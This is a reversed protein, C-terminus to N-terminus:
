FFIYVFLARLSSPILIIQFTQGFSFDGGRRAYYVFESPVDHKYILLLISHCKRTYFNQRRRAAVSRKNAM